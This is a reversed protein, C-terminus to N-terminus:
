VTQAIGMPPQLLWFTFQIIGLRPLMCLTINERPVM